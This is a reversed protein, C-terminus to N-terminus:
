DAQPARQLPLTQWGFFKAECQPAPRLGPPRKVFKKGQMSPTRPRHAPSFRARWNHRGPAALARPAVGPATANRLCITRLLLQEKRRRIAPTRLRKASPAFLLSLKGFRGVPRTFLRARNTSRLAGATNKRGLGKGPQKRSTWRKRGRRSQKGSGARRLM